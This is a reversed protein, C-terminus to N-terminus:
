RRSWAFPALDIEPTEGCVLGALARASGAAMTWGLHGHGCNLWLGPVPAAGVYPRGDASMPRLGAWPKETHRDVRRALEPFVRELLRFLNEIREPRVTKDPGAFEATGVLRLRRGLPVVAAHMEEDIVALRPAEDELGSADLTLSYGKAPRIPLRFGLGRALAPSAVGAALVVDGAIFGGGALAVGTVRGGDREFREVRAGLRIACGLARARDALALAFNRSDGCRDGPYHIGGAIRDAAAVLAPEAAVVGARDLAEFALGERELSRALALPGAMAATSPFIKLTGREGCDFAIDFARAIERTARASYASLRYNAQASREHRGPSSNRLFELGWRALGPAAAPRLKMAAYPDFLSRLLHAGVGPSNWPDSMSPTLMGGNAFSSEAALEPGAEVLTAPVGRRALEFLTAIGILGGGVIVFDKM